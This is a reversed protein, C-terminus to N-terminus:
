LSKLRKKAEDLFPSRLQSTGQRNDAWFDQSNRERTSSFIDQRSIVPLGAAVNNKETSMIDKVFADIPEIMQKPPRQVLVGADITRAFDKRSDIEIVCKAHLVDTIKEVSISRGQEKVVVLVDVQDIFSKETASLLSLYCQKLVLVVYDSAQICKEGFKSGDIGFDAVVVPSAKIVEGLIYDSFAINGTGTQRAKSAVLSLNRDVVVSIESLARASPKESALWDEFGYNSHEVCCIAQLDGHSADVLLTEDYKALSSALLTAISSTGVGGKASFVSILM